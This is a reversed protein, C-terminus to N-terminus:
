GVAHVAERALATALTGWARTLNAVAATMLAQLRTKGRGLYRAQRLGLQMLRALRHEVSQRAVLDQRYADTKQHARAAQLLGEQPHLTVTRGGGKKSSLCADMLPCKACLDAPFHFRKVPEVGGEPAAGVKPAMYTFEHTTHGAPCTVSNAELDIIFNAKHCPQDSPPSPVKAVLNRGADAFQQRTAGDGYACDGISKDVPMGSNQEAEEVLRLSDQCDAANGPLVEVAVIIDSDTDVAIAAKHGDFRNSASKRGHRMEPDHVSVVRDRAVGDKITPTPGSRDVDQELLRRLLREAEEIRQSAAGPPLGHRVQAAKLLIRDVDSVLANLFLRREADNSWEIGADGKLSSGGWYRALDNQEAWAKVGVNLAEALAKALNRIGDAVLNYTDKVAGRGLIPSTDLAVTLKRNKLLGLRKAEEISALFIAEFKENLHLRARFEQLTSRGFPKQELEVCLAVKWRIDFQARKAAEEDSCRDHMQLLLAKAMLSPATCPRGNDECYMSAFLEDLFLRHGEVALMGYFTHTGVMTLYLNESSFLRGQPEAPRYM